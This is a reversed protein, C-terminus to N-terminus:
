ASNERDADKSFVRRADSSIDNFLNINKQELDAFSQLIAKREKFFEKDHYSLRACLKTAEAVNKTNHMLDRNLGPCTEVPDDRYRWLLPTTNYKVTTDNQKLHEIVSFVSFYCNSRNNEYGEADYVLVNYCNVNKDSLNTNKLRQIVVDYEERYDELVEIEFNNEAFNVENIDVDPMESIFQQASRAQNNGM